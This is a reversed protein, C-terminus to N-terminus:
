PVDLTFTPTKPSAHKNHQRDVPMRCINIGGMTIVDGIGQIKQKVTKSPLSCSFLVQPKIPPQQEITPYNHSLRLELHHRAARRRSSCPIFGIGFGTM